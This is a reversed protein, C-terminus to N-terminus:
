KDIFSIIEISWKKKKANATTTSDAGGGNSTQMLNSSHNNIKTRLREYSNRGGEGLLAVALEYESRKEDIVVINGDVDGELPLLARDNITEFDIKLRNELSKNVHNILDIINLAVEENGIM